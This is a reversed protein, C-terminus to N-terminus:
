MLIDTLLFPLCNTIVCEDFATICLGEVAGQASESQLPYVFGYIYGTSCSFPVDDILMPVERVSGVM